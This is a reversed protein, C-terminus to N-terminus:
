PRQHLLGVGVRGHQALQGLMVGAQAVEFVGAGLVGGLTKKGHLLLLDRLM